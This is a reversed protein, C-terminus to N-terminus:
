LGVLIPSGWIIVLCDILKPYLGLTCLACRDVSYFKAMRVEGGGHTLGFLQQPRWACSQLGSCPQFSSCSWWTKTHNHLFPFFYWIVMFWGWDPAGHVMRLTSCPPPFKMNKSPKRSFTYSSKVANLSWNITFDMYQLIKSLFRQGSSSHTPRGSM